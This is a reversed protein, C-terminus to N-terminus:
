RGNTTDPPPTRQRVPRGPLASSDVPVPQPEAAPPRAPSTTDARPVSREPVPPRTGDAPRREAPLPRDAVDFTDWAAEAPPTRTRGDRRMADLEPWEIGDAAAIGMTDLALDSAGLEEDGWSGAWVPAQVDPYCPARPPRGGVFYETYTAGSSPCGDAVVQGSARDVTESTVGSPARWEAPMP